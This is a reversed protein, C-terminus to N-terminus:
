RSVSRVNIRERVLTPIVNPAASGLRTGVRMYSAANSLPRSIFHRNRILDLIVFRHKQESITALYSIVPLNRSRM